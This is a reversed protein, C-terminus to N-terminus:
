ANRCQLYKGKLGVINEYKRGQTQAILDTENLTTLKGQRDLKFLTFGTVRLLSLLQEADSGAKSLGYPWFESILICDRSNHLINLGGSIVKGEGGQVDIKLFDISEINNLACCKDLTTSHIRECEDLLPDPYLRNDGNNQSNKYLTLTGEIDSAAADSVIIRCSCNSGINAKITENLFARSESHPEMCLITGQFQETALAMGTYLGVNAGIDVFTMRPSFHKRFFCIENREYVRLALASSIVPDKPNLYIVAGGVSVTKPILSRITLNAANKLARPRLLTTYVFEALNM